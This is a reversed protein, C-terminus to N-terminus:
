FYIFFRLIINCTKAIFAIRENTLHKRIFGTDFPPM